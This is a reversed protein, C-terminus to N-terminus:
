TLLVLQTKVVLGLAQVFLGLCVPLECAQIYVCLSLRMACFQYLPFVREKRALVFRQALTTKINAWRRRRQVLMLVIPEFDPNWICETIFFVSLSQFGKSLMTVLNVYVFVQLIDKLHGGYFCLIFDYCNTM